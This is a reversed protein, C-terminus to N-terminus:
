IWLDWMVVVDWLMVRCGAVDRSMALDVVESFGCIGYWGCWWLLAVDRSMACCRAVDWRSM